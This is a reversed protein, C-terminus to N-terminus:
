TNEQKSKACSTRFDKQFQRTETVLGYSIRVSKGEPIPNVATNAYEVCENLRTYLIELPKDPNYTEQLNRNNEM